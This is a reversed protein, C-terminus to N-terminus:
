MRQLTAHYIMSGIALIVNSIHLVSFRKEFRQSLAIVLGILALVIAPINSLTNFFEAIYSSYVYNPECWEHTSTVPGWFSSIGGEMGLNTYCYIDSYYEAIFLNIIEPSRCSVRWWCKISSSCLISILNFAGWITDNRYNAMFWFALLGHSVLFLCLHVITVNLNLCRKIRHFQFLILIM